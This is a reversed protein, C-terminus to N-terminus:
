MKALSLLVHVVIIGLMSVSAVPVVIASVTKGKHFHKIPPLDEVPTSGPTVVYYDTSRGKKEIVIDYSEQGLERVFNNVAYQLEEPKQAYSGAIKILYKEDEAKYAGSVQPVSTCGSLFIM